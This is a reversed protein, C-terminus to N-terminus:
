QSNTFTQNFASGSAKPTNLKVDTWFKYEFEVDSETTM